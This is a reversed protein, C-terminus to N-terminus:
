FPVRWRVAGVIQGEDQGEFEEGLYTLGYFGTIGTESRWMVGARVRERVDEATVGRDSPLLKSDSVRAIDAGLVFSYGSWEGEVARYRQGSVSDRILLDGHGLSGYTFDVGARVMTEVGARAEVFPRLTSAGGVAISRGAELVVNPVIDNGIQANRVADSPRVINFTDHFADQFEDLKTQPGLFVIDGGVSYEMLGRVFHTHLGASLAGAYPRDGPAPTRIDDPALIEAALRLELLQGFGEPARGQWTPGWIRSSQFGGTRWRDEGDGFFDNTILRGYGLRKRDQADAVGSLVITACLAATLYKIM